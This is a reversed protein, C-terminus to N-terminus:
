KTRSMWFDLYQQAVQIHNHHKQIYHYSEESLRPLQDQELVLKELKRFVDQQDPIVNIIPHIEQENLMEYNEPEGGGVVIIGKAMAQLANMAPTYSYLQDLIVDCNDMLSCYQKYPVSEVKTLQCQEPYKEILEKLATLMIDTGKYENRAKQIGIFFNIKPNRGRPIYSHMSCDIPFPIYQLKDKFYPMYSAHYEYLGSIIGDCDHAIYQNLKGKEGLLWDNIWINNEKYHRIEKGLNFDSYRFTKCDIGAKVWYHDMGFAGMFVLKNNRRLYDYIPYFREAKLSLFVPNILQVVDYGRLKPLTYALKMLYRITGLSGQKRKLSIDRQYNKWSDGDSVVTVTHGLQRLGTALTWHVNSYEGLLLIKM